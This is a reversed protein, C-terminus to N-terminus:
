HMLDIARQVAYLLSVKTEECGERRVKKLVTASTVSTSQLLLLMRVATCTLCPAQKTKLLVLLAACSSFRRHM